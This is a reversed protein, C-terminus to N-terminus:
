KLDGYRREDLRRIRVGDSPREDQPCSQEDRAWMTDFQASSYEARPPVPFQVAETRWAASGPRLGWADLSHAGMVGSKSPLLAGRQWTWPGNLREPFRADAADGM